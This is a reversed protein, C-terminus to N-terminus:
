FYTQFLTTTKPEMRFDFNQHTNSTKKSKTMKTDNLTIEM